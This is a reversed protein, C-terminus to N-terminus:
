DGITASAGRSRIIVNSIGARRMTQLMGSINTLTVAGTASLLIKGDNLHGVVTLAANRINTDRLPLTGLRMTGDRDLTILDSRHSHSRVLIFAGLGLLVVCVFM